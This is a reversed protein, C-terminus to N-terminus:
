RFWGGRWFSELADRSLILGVALLFIWISLAVMSMPNEYLGMLGDFLSEIM